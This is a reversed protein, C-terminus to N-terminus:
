VSSAGSRIRYFDREVTLEGIKAHLKYVKEPDVTGEASAGGFVEAARQLLENGWSTIQSPHVDYRAALQAVTKEGRLAELGVRAKFAPFPKTQTKAGSRSRGCRSHVAPREGITADL